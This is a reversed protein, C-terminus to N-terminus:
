MPRRAISVQGFYNIIYFFTWGCLSLLGRHDFRNGRLGDNGTRSFALLNDDLQGTLRCLDDMLLGQREISQSNQCIQCFSSLMKGCGLREALALQQSFNEGGLQRLDISEAVSRSCQSVIQTGDEHQVADFVGGDVLEDVGDNGTLEVIRRCPVDVSAGHQGQQVLPNAGEISILGLEFRLGDRCQLLQSLLEIVVQVLFKLGPGVVRDDLVQHAAHGPDLEHLEHHVDDLGLHSLQLKRSM